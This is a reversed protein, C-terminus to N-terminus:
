LIIETNPFAEPTLTINNKIFLARHPFEYVVDSEPRTSTFYYSILSRRKVDSSVNLVGTHGHWRHASTTFIHIRNKLCYKESVDGNRSIM